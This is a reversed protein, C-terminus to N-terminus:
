TRAGGPIALRHVQNTDGFRTTMLMEAKTPNWDQFTAARAETYRGVKEVLDAPIPPIGDVVLNDGPTITKPAPEAALCVSSLFVSVFLTILRVNM